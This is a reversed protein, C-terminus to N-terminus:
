VHMEVQTAALNMRDATLIAGAFRGQHLDDAADILWTRSRDEVLALFPLEGRRAFGFGGADSDDMLFEVENRMEGHRFVDIEGALRPKAESTEEDIALLQM